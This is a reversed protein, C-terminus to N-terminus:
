GSVLHDIVKVHDLKDRAVFIKMDEYRERLLKRCRTVETFATKAKLAVPDIGIPVSLVRVFNNNHVIGEPLIEVFLIRSCTQLFHHAYATTQFAIM